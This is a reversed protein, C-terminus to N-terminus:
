EIEYHFECELSGRIFIKRIRTKPPTQPPPAFSIKTTKVPKQFEDNKIPPPPWKFIVDHLITHDEKGTSDLAETELPTM